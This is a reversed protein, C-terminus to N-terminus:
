QARFVFPWSVEGSLGEPFRWSTLRRAICTALADDGTDNFVVQSASVAGREVTWGVEVRGALGPNVKLHLEYCYRLQGAYRTITERVAAGTDTVPAPEPASALAPEPEPEPLAALTQPPISKCALLFIPTWRLM